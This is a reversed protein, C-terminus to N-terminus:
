APETVQLQQEDEAPASAEILAICDAVSQGAAMAQALRAHTKSHRRLLTTVNLVAWRIQGAAKKETFQARVCCAQKEPSHSCSGPLCAIGPRANVAGATAMLTSLPMVQLARLMSDLQQIDNIGGEAQGFRVYETAVGALAVSCYRDLSGSSLTGGAVQVRSGCWVSLGLM